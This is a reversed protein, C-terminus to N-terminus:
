LYSNCEGEIFSTLCYKVGSIPKQGRHTFLAGTPFILVSGEKPSVKRGFKFETCGGEDVDNLYVIIALIRRTNRTLITDDSHWGFWSDNQVYKKFMYGTDSLNDSFLQYNGFKEYILDIYKSCPSKLKSYVLDEIDGLNVSYKVPVELTKKTNNYEAGNPGSCMGSRLFESNECRDIIKKCEQKTYANDFVCIFDNLDM